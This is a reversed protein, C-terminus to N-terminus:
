INTSLLKLHSNSFYLTPNNKKTNLKMEQKYDQLTILHQLIKGKIFSIDNSYM